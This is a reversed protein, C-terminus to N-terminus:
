MLVELYLMRVKKGIFRIDWNEFAALMYKTIIDYICVILYIEM